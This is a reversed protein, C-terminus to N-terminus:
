QAQETPSLYSVAIQHVSSGAFTRYQLSAEVVDGYRRPNLIVHPHVLSMHRQAILLDAAIQLEQTLSDRQDKLSRRAMAKLYAKCLMTEMYRNIAEMQAPYERTWRENADRRTENARQAFVPFELVADKIESAMIKRAPGVPRYLWLIDYKM